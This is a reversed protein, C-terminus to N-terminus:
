KQIEKNQDNEDELKEGPLPDVSHKYNYGKNITMLSLGLVLIVVVICIIVVVLM